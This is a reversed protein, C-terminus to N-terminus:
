NHVYQYGLCLSPTKLPSFGLTRLKNLSISNFRKFDKYRIVELHSTGKEHCIQIARLTPRYGTCNGHCHVDFDKSVCKKKRLDGM